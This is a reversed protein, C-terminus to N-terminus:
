ADLAERVALGLTHSTFPKLLLRVHPDELRAALQAAEPAYGTTLLVKADPRIARIRAYAALAGIKPMVVDLVSLAIEPARRAYERVAEEGDGVEIVGYGLMKLTAAVLARLPLSDEAVLITERGRPTSPQPTRPAPVLPTAPDLLPLYVRFTAGRGPETEVHVMGDHQQVIGYVTALGLGTGQERTTFFPDFVRDRTAADMGIGTDTVALEAFRGERAWPNRQVFAADLVSERVAITLRGGGPMAQRANTCLNLLVQELQVADADVVLPARSRVVVLEVDEGLIRELLRAFGDLAASMDLAAKRMIQKRSFVLM